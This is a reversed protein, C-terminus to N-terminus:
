ASKLLTWDQWESNWWWYRIYITKPNKAPFVIQINVDGRKMSALFFLTKDSGMVNALKVDTWNNDNEAYTYNGRRPCVDTDNGDPGYRGVFHTGGFPIEAM